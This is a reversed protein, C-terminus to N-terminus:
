NRGANAGGLRMLNFMGFAEEPLWNLAYCSIMVNWMVLDPRPVVHLTHSLFGDHCPCLIFNEWTLDADNNRTGSGQVM